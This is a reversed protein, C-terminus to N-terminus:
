LDTHQQKEGYVHRLKPTHFGSRGIVTNFATTLMVFTDEFSCCTCYSLLVVFHNLYTDFVRRLGLGDIVQIAALRPEHNSVDTWTVM